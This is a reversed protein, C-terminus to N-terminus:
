GGSGLHEEVNGRNEEVVLKVGKVPHILMGPLCMRGEGAVEEEEGGGGDVRLGLWRRWLNPGFGANYFWSTGLFNHQRGGFVSTRAGGTAGAKGGNFTAALYATPWDRDIYVPHPAYVAKLGHHLAVSAPWMESFMTHRLLATEEHMTHLLRRSLRTTTITASRRPPLGSSGNYGTVDGALLWETKDPDFLPNLTILDADEGVGWEYRDKDYSTPPVPDSETYLDDIPGEPGWIPKERTDSGAVKSGDLATWMNSPSDTGFETQVRVMQKFDDWSGHVSPVYFRGNREWLGKRPQERAWRGLRDLLHYYHGTYRADMEWHWFFDYEPHQEAFWQVPMFTSRYAGHVPLERFFSEHLGGYILGMQRETWLTALGWFEEPLSMRLVDKYVERDAWIQANDDQVHVLIHVTFEGGSMLSLESIVARLFLIDEERYKFTWWTRILFATRPLPRSVSAQPHPEEERAVIGEKKGVLDFAQEDDNEEAAPAFRHRNLQGCRRQLDGWRVGRYEVEGEEGWTKDIDDRDGHLGTGVGGRQISYGYGYPGLRGYREFCIDDRLGLAEASGFIADPFGVTVGPYARISPALRSLNTGAICDKVIGYQSVHEDSAYKPYPDFRLSPPFGEGRRTMNAEQLQGEDAPRPYEPVNESRSVLTRIGGYYRTLFPFETWQPAPMPRVVQGLEIRRSSVYSMRILSLIVIVVTSIMAFCLYQMINHPLRYCYLTQQRRPRQRAPQLMPHLPYPADRSGGSYSSRGSSSTYHSTSPSDPPSFIAKEADADLTPVSSYRVQARPAPRLEDLTPLRMM